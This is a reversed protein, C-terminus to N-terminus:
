TNCNNCVGTLFVAAKNINYNPINPVTVDISLCTVKKCNTCEFHPHVDNHHDSTCSSKCKAYWKLGNKGIFSHVIGEDELRDLARYVTTKNMEKKLREVLDVASIASFENSFLDLLTKVAKTKRIIGM